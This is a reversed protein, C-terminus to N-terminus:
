GSLPSPRGQPQRHANNKVTPPAIALHVQRGLAIHCTCRTVIHKIPERVGLRPGHEPAFTPRTRAENPQAARAALV